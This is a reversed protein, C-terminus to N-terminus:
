SSSLLRKNLMVRERERYLGGGRSTRNSSASQECDLAGVQTSIRLLVDADENTPLLTLNVSLSGDRSGTQHTHHWRSRCGTTCPYGQTPTPFERLVYPSETISFCHNNADNRIFASWRTATGHNDTSLVQVNPVLLPCCHISHRTDKIQSHESSVKSGNLLNLQKNTAQM